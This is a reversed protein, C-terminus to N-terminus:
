GRRVHRLLGDVAADVLQYVLDFEGTYYPDPVDRRGQTVAPDAYDLLRVVQGRGGHQRLLDRLDAEQEGDMAVLYDFADLDHRNVQRAVIGDATIQHRRLVARTGRHPLEGSHWSGTGASDVAITRSLGAAAIKHRMVAEAMPSRCINGSCVFLVTTTMRM